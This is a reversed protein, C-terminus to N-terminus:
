VTLDTPLINKVLVKAFGKALSIGAEWVDLRFLEVFIPLVDRMPSQIGFLAHATSSVVKRRASKRNRWSALRTKEFTAYIKLLKRCTSINIPINHPLAYGSAIRIDRIEVPSLKMEPVLAQIQKCSTQFAVSEQESAKLTTAQDRSKRWGVLPLPLNAAQTSQTLCSWLEYDQAVMLEDDYSLPELHNHRLVVSTHCFANNFLMIWHINFDDEPLIVKSLYKGEEDIQYYGTGLIDIEPHREMYRIQLSFRSPLSVDDADQRAIYEGKAMLLGHNLSKALGMNKHNRHLVIRGDERTYEQLINWLRTAQAMM